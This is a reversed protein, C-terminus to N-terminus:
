SDYESHPAPGHVSAMFISPEFTSIGEQSKDGIPYDNLVIPFLERIKSEKIWGNIFKRRWSLKLYLETWQLWFDTNLGSPLPPPSSPSSVTDGAYQVVGMDLSHRPILYLLIRFQIRIFTVAVDRCSIMTLWFCIVVRRPSVFHLDSSGFM